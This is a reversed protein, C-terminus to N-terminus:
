PLLTVAAMEELRSAAVYPDTLQEVYSMEYELVSGFNSLVALFELGGTQYSAVSSELALRAQPLVGDRYLMALQRATMAMQFDEQLRGQLTLRTAEVSQQDAALTAQREAVAARRRGRQLPIVM